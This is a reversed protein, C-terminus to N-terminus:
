TLLVRHNQRLVEMVSGILKEDKVLLDVAFDTHYNAEATANDNKGSFRHLTNLYEVFNTM